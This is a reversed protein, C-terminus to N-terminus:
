QVISEKNVWIDMELMEEIHQKMSSLSSNASRIGTLEGQDFERELADIRSLIVNLLEVSPSNTIRQRGGKAITQKVIVYAYFVSRGHSHMREVAGLGKEPKTDFLFLRNTEEEQILKGEESVLGSYDEEENKFDWFLQPFSLEIDRALGLLHEDFVISQRTEERQKQEEEFIERQKELVKAQERQADTMKEFEQRQERLEQGQLVVTAILWVFALAGAFGALTDGVENPSAALFASWKTGSCSRNGWFDVNCVQQSGAWWGFVVVGVTALSAVIIVPNKWLPKQTKKQETM